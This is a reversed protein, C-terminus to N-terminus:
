RAKTISGLGGGHTNVTKPDGYYTLSGVGGLSADLENSAWVKVSGVGGVNVRATEAHLERTDISGVGGVNMTLNKVTGDAKLSGAGGFRVELRDGSMHTITTEGAGAMTFATLQPVTITVNLADHNRNFNTTDRNMHLRLENDVVETRLDAVLDDTGSVRVSQVKGVEIHLNVPGSNSIASFPAVSRMEDAAHAQLAFLAAATALSLTLAHRM